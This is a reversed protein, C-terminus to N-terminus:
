NRGYYRPREFRNFGDAEEMAITKAEIKFYQERLANLKTELEAGQFQASLRKKESNYQMGVQWRKEREADLADLQNLQTEDYGMNKRLNHITQQREEANLTKLDQQVSDLGFYVSALTSRYAAAPMQSTEAALAFQNNLTQLRMDLSLDVNTNLESLTNQLDLRQQEYQAIEDAWLEKAGDGFIEQRKGWLMGQRTLPDVSALLQNQLTLWNQYNDWMAQHALIISAQPPFAQLVINQWQQPGAKGALKYIHERYRLMSIHTTIKDISSLYDTRLAAILASVQHEAVPQSFDDEATTATQKLVVPQFLFYVAPILLGVLTLPLLIKKM